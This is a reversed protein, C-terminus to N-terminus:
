QKSKHKIRAEYEMATLLYRVGYWGYLGKLKQFHKDIKLIEPETFSPLEKNLFDRFGNLRVKFGELEDVGVIKRGNETTGMKTILDDLSKLDNFIDESIRGGYDNTKSQQVYQEIQDIAEDKSIDNRVLDTLIDFLRDRM